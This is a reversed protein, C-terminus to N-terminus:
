LPVNYRDKLGQLKRSLKDGKAMNKDWMAYIKKKKPKNITRKYVKLFCKWNYTKFKKIM